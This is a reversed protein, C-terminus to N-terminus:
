HFAAGLLDVMLRIATQATRGSPDRYPNVEVIDLGVLKGKTPIGRLLDDIETFNLGGPELPLGGLGDIVCLMIKTDNPTALARLLDIDMRSYYDRSGELTLM